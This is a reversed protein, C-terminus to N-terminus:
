RRQKGYRNKQKLFKKKDEDSFDFFDVLSSNLAAVIRKFTEKEMKISKRIVAAYLTNYSVDAKIALQRLSMGKEKALKGIAEGTKM